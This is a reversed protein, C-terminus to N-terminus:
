TGEQEECKGKWIPDLEDVRMLDAAEMIVLILVDMGWAQKQSESVSNSSTWTQVQGRLM